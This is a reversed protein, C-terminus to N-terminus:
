VSPVSASTDLIAQKAFSLTPGEIQMYVYMSCTCLTYDASLERLALLVNLGSREM